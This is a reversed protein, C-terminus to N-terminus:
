KKPRLRPVFRGTRSRYERYPDGFRALLREEERDTHIVLLLLVISGALLFFWNAAILSISLMLLAAADYFPHRVWAYPGETVLTHERRTVVTDTLNKGLNGLAWALLGFGIGFCGVGAWRLWRPLALSGWAVWRPRIMYAIVGLWLLLGVPRLTALIFLGEHSRDLRERSAWSRIRHYLMLALFAIFGVILIVRFPDDQSM